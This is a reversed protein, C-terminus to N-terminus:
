ANGTPLASIAASDLHPPFDSRYDSLTIEYRNADGRGSGTEGTGATAKVPEESGLAYYEGNEDEVVAILDGKILANMNMRNEKDMRNYQFVADTQVYSSGAAEDFNYTSTMNAIGRRLEQRYWTIGTSFGSVTGATTFTYADDVYNGVWVCKVGGKSNFCNEISYSTLTTSCAM